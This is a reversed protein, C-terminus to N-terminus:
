GRVWKPPAASNVVYLVGQQRGSPLPVEMSSWRTILFISIIAGGGHQQKPHTGGSAASQQQDSSERDGGNREPGAQGSTLLSLVEMQKTDLKSGM